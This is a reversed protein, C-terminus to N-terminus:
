LRIVPHFKSTPEDAFELHFRNASLLVTSTCSKRWDVMAGSLWRRVEVYLGSRRGASQGILLPHCGLYSPIMPRVEVKPKGAPRSQPNDASAPAPSFGDSDATSADLNHERLNAHSYADVVVVVVVICRPKGYKRLICVHQQPQIKSSSKGVVRKKEFSGNVELEM